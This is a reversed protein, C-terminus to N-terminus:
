ANEKLKTEAYGVVQEASLNVGMRSLFRLIFDTYARQEWELEVTKSTYPYSIGDKTVPTLIANGLSDYLTPTNSDNLHIVSGVPMYVANGISDQCYDYYPTLPTRIYDLNVLPIDYPIVYITTGLIKVVPHIDPRAYVNNQVRVYGDSSVPTIERYQQGVTVQKIPDNYGFQGFSMFRVYDDPLTASGDVPLLQATKKFPNLISGNIMVGSIPTLADKVLKDLESNVLDWQINPLNFNYETTSLANGAQEKDIIYNIIDFLDQLNM